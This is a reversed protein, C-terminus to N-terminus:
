NLVAKDCRVCGNFWVCASPVRQLWQQTDLSKLDMTSEDLKAALYLQAAVVQDFYTTHSRTARTSLPFASVVGQIPGHPPPTTPQMFVEPLPTGIDTFGACSLIRDQRVFLALPRLVKLLLQAAAANALLEVMASTAGQKPSSPRVLSVSGRLNLFTHSELVYVFSVKVAEQVQNPCLRPGDGAPHQPPFLTATEQETPLPAETLHVVPFFFAVEKMGAAADRMQFGCSQTILECTEPQAFASPAAIKPQWQPVTLLQERDGINYFPLSSPARLLQAVKRGNRADNSQYDYCPIGSDFPVFGSSNVFKGQVAPLVGRQLVCCIIGRPRVYKTGFHLVTPVTPFDSVLNVKARLRLAKLTAEHSPPPPSAFPISRNRSHCSDNPRIPVWRSMQPVLRVGVLDGICALPKWYLENQNTNADEDILVDFPHLDLNRVVPCFNFESDYGVVTGIFYSEPDERIKLETTDIAAALLKRQDLKPVFDKVATVQPVPLHKFTEIFRDTDSQYTEVTCNSPALVLKSWDKWEPSARLANFNGVVILLHKGRTTITGMTHGSPFPLTGVAAGGQSVLSVAVIKAESGQVSEADTVRVGKLGVIEFRQRLQKQQERHTAIVIVDDVTLTGPYMGLLSAICSVVIEMEKPAITTETTTEECHIFRGATPNGRHGRWERYLEDETVDVPPPMVVLKNDYIAHNLLTALHASARHSNRLQVVAANDHCFSYLSQHLHKKAAPFNCPPTTQKPDGGLVLTCSPNGVVPALAQLGEILGCQAAEDVIVLDVHQFHKAQSCAAVVISYSTIRPVNERPSYYKDTLTLRSIEKTSDERNSFCYLAPDGDLPSENEGHLRLLVKNDDSSTLSLLQVLRRAAVNCANRTFALYLVKANPNKRIFSAAACCLAETKGTGGPGDVKIKRLHPIPKMILSVFLKQQEDLHNGFSDDPEEVAAPRPPAAVGRGGRERRQPERQGAEDDSRDGDASAILLARSRKAFIQRAVEPVPTILFEYLEQGHHQAFEIRAKAINRFRLDDFLIDFSDRSWALKALTLEAGLAASTLDIAESDCTRRQFVAKGKVAELVDGAVYAKDKDVFLVVSKFVKGTSKSTASISDGKELSPRRDTFREEDDRRNIILGNALHESVVFQQGRREYEGLCAIIYHYEMFMITSFFTVVDRYPHNAELDKLINELEYKAEIPLMTATDRIREETNFGAGTPIHLLAVHHARPQQTPARLKLYTVAADVLADTTEGPFTIVTIKHARVKGDWFAHSNIDKCTLLVRSPDVYDDIVKPVTTITVATLIAKVTDAKKRPIDVVRVEVESFLNTRHATVLAIDSYQTTRAQLVNKLKREFAEEFFSVLPPFVRYTHSVSRPENGGHGSHAAVQQWRAEEKKPM